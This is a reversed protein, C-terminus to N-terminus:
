NIPVERFGQRNAAAPSAGLQSPHGPYSCSREVARGTLTATGIRLNLLVPSTRCPNSWAFLIGGDAPGPSVRETVKVTTPNGKMGLPTGGLSTITMTATAQYRCEPGHLLHVQSGIEITGGAYADLNGSPAEVKVQGPACPHLAPRTPAPPSQTPPGNPPHSTAAHSISGLVQSVQSIEAPTAEPGIWVRVEFRPPQSTPLLGYSEKPGGVIGGTPRLDSLSVPLRRLQPERGGLPFPLAPEIGVAVGDAPFGALVWRGFTQVTCGVPSYPRFVFNTNTVIIARTEQHSAGPCTNPQLQARWEGPYSVKWGGSTAASGGPATPEGRGGHEFARNLGAFLGAAAIVGCLVLGATVVPSRRVVPRHHVVEEFTPPRGITGILEAGADQLRSSLDRMM